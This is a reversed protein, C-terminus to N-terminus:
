IIGRGIEKKIIDKVKGMNRKETNGFHRRARIKTTGKEMMLAIDKTTSKSNPYKEKKPSVIGQAKGTKTFEISRGFQGTTVSKPEVRNGIISEKVEEEIFGGAKVVGLDANSEIQKKQFHLRRMVESIGTMEVSVVKGTRGIIKVM